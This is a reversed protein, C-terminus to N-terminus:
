AIQKPIQSQPSLMATTSTSMNRESSSGQLGRTFVFRRVANGEKSAILRLVDSALMVTVDEGDVSWLRDGQQVLTSLPSTIKIAHITPACGALTDLVLGLKGAPAEVEFRDDAFYHDELTEDDKAVLLNSNNSDGLSSSAEALSPGGRNRPYERKFDYWLSVTDAVSPQELDQASMRLHAPIPDGLTSLDDGQDLDIVSVIDHRDHDRGNTRHPIDQVPDDKRRKRRYFLVFGGIVVIVVGAASLGGILGKPPGSDGSPTTTSPPLRVNLRTATSFASDRGKLTDLYQSIDKDTSFAGEIYENINHDMEERKSRINISIGFLINLNRDEEQFRARTFSLMLNNSSRSYSRPSLGSPADTPTSTENVVESYPPEQSRFTINVALYEVNRMGIKSIMEDQIQVATVQEWTIESDSNLPDIPFLNMRNNGQYLYLLEYRTPSASIYHSPLM